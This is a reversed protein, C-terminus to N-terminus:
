DLDIPSTVIGRLIDVFCLRSVGYKVDATSQTDVCPLSTASWTCYMCYEAYVIWRVMYEM